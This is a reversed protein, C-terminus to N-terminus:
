EEETEQGMRFKVDYNVIFDTEEDSFGFHKALVHDIEDLIPKSHRPYFEDYVVKGTSYSAEKRVANKRYDEMLRQGLVSLQHKYDADMNDLGLPFHEIERMTLDRCNSLLLFWWFFLSSNLAAVTAGADTESALTLSKVHSSQQEGDRESWFYPAFTMARIWYRPANHYFVQTGRKSWNTQLSKHSFLRQWLARELPSSIKPLSNPFHIASTDEYEIFDFLVERAEERWHHYQTSYLTIPKVGSQTLVIALRQDVGLFLKAPRISYTSIWLSDSARMYKEMLPAMRDTCFSSHPVIMGFRAQASQLKISREMVYAYLNGCNETDYGRISYEKRVKTYEVYPPNGIVIDFGGHKMIHYFEEFWHFPQHTQRWHALRATYVDQQPISNHDIGYDAALYGDLETNLERLRTHLAEKAKAILQPDSEKATQMDHFHTFQQEVAQAKCRIQEMTNNFDLTTVVAHEAEAYTAFGVLTNGARINFDIDPLPEIDAFREIQAVLKLFLRLKCIEVAEEMIDVGYLNNIIISKLIFYRRNPHTAVQALIDRFRTIAVQPRPTGPHLADLREREAVMEQMRDLCAEYLPELINLAAFLFAGSGCTPDLITIHELSAYFASLLDVGESYAIVDQAFQFVDLNYTILDNVTTIKGQALKTRVEAYRNRRAVVERWIETPLAYAEPAAKNWEGRQSVDHLGVEIEPPLTLDCGKRVADYLYRDPDRHLLSWVFGDPTFAVACQEATEDLLRPIITNKSIYGTIDEKTYYAGMQKQNIYKEFIYGLVDPNIERDNRLPRDDLHWDFDDFFAFIREFAEDTIQIDPYDHELLHIDFLGGNLYPVTGLLVELEPSHERQGLGEHFLKLLFYRYFSYFQDAGYRSQMEKLKQSLYHPNGDLVDRQKTDLLGKKQIFYVFMLRNLMLSAYWERDAQVEIGKIFTLFSAHEKQFRDYFRKTVREKDLAQRVRAAVTTTGLEAEEEISFSLAQVKQALREGSQGKQLRYLRSALPQEPERRVWQWAQQTQVADTYIILHEYAHKTLEREIQRMIASAPIHGQVEPSCLYVKFGRKEVLPRLIYTQSDVSITWPSERLIDWGLEEVFLSKFDFTALDRQIRQKDLIVAMM